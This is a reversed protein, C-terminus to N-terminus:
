PPFMTVVDARHRSTLASPVNATQKANTKKKRHLTSNKMHALGLLWLEPPIRAIFYAKLRPIEFCAKSVLDGPAPVSAVRPMQSLHSRFGRTRQYRLSLLRGVDSEIETRLLFLVLFLRGLEGALM